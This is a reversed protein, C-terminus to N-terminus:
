SRSDREETSTYTPDDDEHIYYDRAYNKSFEVAWQALQNMEDRTLYRPSPKRTLKGDKYVKLKWDNFTLTIM